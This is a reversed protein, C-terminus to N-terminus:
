NRPWGQWIHKRLPTMASLICIRYRIPPLPHRITELYELGSSYVPVIRVEDQYESYSLAVSGLYDTLAEDTYWLYLTERHGFLNESEQPEQTQKIAIGAKGVGYVGAAVAAIALIMGLRKKLTM